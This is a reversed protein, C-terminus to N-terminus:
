EFCISPAPTCPLDPEDPRTERAIIIIWYDQITRGPENTRVHAIGFRDQEKYSETKGVLHNRHQSSDLLAQWVEDPAALGGALAEISNGRGGPYDPPLEYGATRLLANPGFRGPTVHSFYNRDIMDRGRFDAFASLAADCVLSTREQQRSNVLLDALEREKPTLECEGGVLPALAPVDVDPARKRDDSPPPLVVGGPLRRGAHGSDGQEAGTKVPSQKQPPACAALTAGVLLAVAFVAWLRCKMSIDGPIETLRM